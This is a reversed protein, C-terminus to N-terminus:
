KGLCLIFNHEHYILVPAIEITEVHGTVFVRDNVESGIVPMKERRYQIFCINPQIRKM